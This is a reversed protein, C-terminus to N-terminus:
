NGEKLATARAIYKDIDQAEQSESFDKKITQYADLAEGYEKLEEYVLGAKKYFIPSTLKNKSMRAAKKYMKVGKELDGLEVYADGTAGTALPEIMRNDTSFDELQDVANQYEGM